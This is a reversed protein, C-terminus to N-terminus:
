RLDIVFRDATLRLTFKTGDAVVQDIAGYPNKGVVIHLSDGGEAVFVVAGKSLDLPFDAPTEARITDKSTLARVLPVASPTTTRRGSKDVAIILDGGLTFARFSVSRGHLGTLMARHPWAATEASPGASSGAGALTLALLSLPVRIM